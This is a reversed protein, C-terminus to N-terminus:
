ACDMGPDNYDNLINCIGLTAANYNSIQPIESPVIPKVCYRSAVYDIFQSYPTSVISLVYNEVEEEPFSYYFYFMSENIKNEYYIFFFAEIQKDM